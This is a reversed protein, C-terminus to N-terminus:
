VFSMRQAPQALFSLIGFKFNVFEITRHNLSQGCHQCQCEAHLAGVM